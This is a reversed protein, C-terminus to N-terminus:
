GASRASILRLADVHLAIRYQRIKEEGFGEAWAYALEGVAWAPMASLEEGEAASLAGSTHAHHKDQIITNM